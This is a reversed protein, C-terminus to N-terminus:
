QKLTQKFSLKGDVVQNTIRALYNDKTNVSRNTLSSPSPTFTSVLSFLVYSVRHHIESQTIIRVLPSYPLFVLFYNERREFIKFFSRFNFIFQFCSCVFLIIFFTNVQVSINM